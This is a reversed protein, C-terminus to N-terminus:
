PTDFNSGTAAAHVRVFEDLPANKRFEGRIWNYYLLASKREAGLTNNNTEGRLKVWEGWKTAWVDAFEDRELLEDVLKSRKGADASEVFKRYEDPKPPLGILDIYARRVFQEDSCVASPIIHLKQLKAHVLEDIYNVAKIDDPWKYDKEQPLVIVESGITFKGFRAFVHTDGPKGSTIVGDADVDAASKNATVFLALRTVDRSTGDSYSAVVKAPQKVGAADFVIKDPLIALNTPIPVDDKDDPAGAELWKLLTTYSESGVKFLEGGTHPVRGTAKMLLLSEEPAALNIRRGPMQQTLRFYDGTPDYSFLSLRFGDKGRASGHCGGSNCGARFFIPEIDLRFSPAADTAPAAAPAPTESAYSGMAALAIILFILNM